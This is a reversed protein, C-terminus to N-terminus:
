AFDIQVNVSRSGDPSAFTSGYGIPAPEGRLIVARQRSDEFALLANYITTCSPGRQLDRYTTAITVGDIIVRLRQRAAIRYSSQLPRVPPANM